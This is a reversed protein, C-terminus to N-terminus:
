KKMKKRAEELDLLKLGIGLTELRVRIDDILRTGFDNPKEFFSIEIDVPLAKLQPYQNELGGGKVFAVYTDLKRELKKATDPTWSLQQVLGLTVRTKDRNIAVLDIKDGELVHAYSTFALGLTLTVVFPRLACFM